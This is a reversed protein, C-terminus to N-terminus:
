EFGIKTHKLTVEGGTDIKDKIGQLRSVLNEKLLGAMAGEVQYAKIISDVGSIVGAFEEYRGDKNLRYDETRKMIGRKFLFADFGYWTLPREIKYHVEDADKGKFDMKTLPNNKAWNVFLEFLRLFEEPTEIGKPRGVPKKEPQGKARAEM